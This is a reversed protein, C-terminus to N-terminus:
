RMFFMIPGNKQIGHNCPRRIATHREARRVAAPCFPLHLIGVILYQESPMFILLKAGPKLISMGSHCKM